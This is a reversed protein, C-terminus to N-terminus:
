IGVPSSNCLYMTLMVIKVDPLVEKIKRAADVGSLGHLGIDMFIIEPHEEKAIDIGEEGSIAEILKIEGHCRNILDKIFERLNEQDTVSLIKMKDKM